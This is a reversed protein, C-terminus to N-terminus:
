HVECLLTNGKSIPIAPVREMLEFLRTSAGLGKNLESYFSSLSGFAIGVYASYLLFSSLQGVTLASETM